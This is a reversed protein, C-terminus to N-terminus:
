PLSLRDIICARLAGQRTNNRGNNKRTMWEEAAAGPLFGRGDQDPSRPGTLAYKTLSLPPSIRVWSLIRDRVCMYMYSTIIM